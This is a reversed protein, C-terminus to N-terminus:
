RTASETLLDETTPGKPADEVPAEETKTMDAM